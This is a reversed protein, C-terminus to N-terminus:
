FHLLLFSTGRGRCRHYRWARWHRGVQPPAALFSLPPSQRGTHAPLVFARTVRASSLSFAASGPRGLRSLPVFAELQPSGERFILGGALNPIASVPLAVQAALSRGALGKMRRRTQPIHSLALGESLVKYLQSQLRREAPAWQDKQSERGRVGGWGLGM